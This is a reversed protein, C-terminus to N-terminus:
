TNARRSCRKNYHNRREILNLNGGFTGGVARWLQWQM